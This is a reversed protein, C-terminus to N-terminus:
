CGLFCRKVLPSLTPPYINGDERGNLPYVTGQTSLESAHEVWSRSFNWWSQTETTWLPSWGSFMGEKGTENEKSGREKGTITKLYVVQICARM